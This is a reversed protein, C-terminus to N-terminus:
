RGEVEVAGHRLAFVLAQLRSEVGLKTLIGTLHSRVTGPGVRLRRAIEKDNLGDALAQLVELERRTLRALAARADRDQERRKVALRVMELVESPPMIQEGAALRRIANTIEDLDAAKNLVSSAGAEVAGALRNKDSHATLVLASAERNAARLDDILDTGSGDPLDLDLLAVDAGGDLGGLARRAEALTGAQAVVSLDPEQDLVLALPIRSSAHDDLLLLRIM